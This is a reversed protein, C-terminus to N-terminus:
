YDSIGMVVVNNASVFLVAQDYIYQIMCTTLAYPNDDDTGSKFPGRITPLFCLM